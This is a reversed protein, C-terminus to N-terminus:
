SAGSSISASITSHLARARRGCARSLNSAFLGVGRGHVRAVAPLILLGASRRVLAREALAHAEVCVGAPRAASAFLLFDSGISPPRLVTIHSNRPVPMIETM